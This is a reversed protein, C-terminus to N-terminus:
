ILLRCRFSCGHVAFVGEGGGAGVAFVAEEDDGDVVPVANVFVADVGFEEGDVVELHPGVFEAFAGEMFEGVTAAQGDGDGRDGSGNEKADVVKQDGEVGGADETDDVLVSGGELSVDEIWVRECLHNM